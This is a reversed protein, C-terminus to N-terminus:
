VIMMFHIINLRNLDYGKNGRSLIINSSNIFGLGVDTRNLFSLITNISRRSRRHTVIYVNMGSNHNQKIQNIIRRNPILLNPAHRYSPTPHIQGTRDPRTVSIHLVGDFDYGINIRTLSTFTPSLNFSTNNFSPYNYSVPYQSLYSSQPPTNSVKTTYRPM